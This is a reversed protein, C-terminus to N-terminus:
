HQAVWFRSAASATRQGDRHGHLPSNSLLLADLSFLVGTQLLGKALSWRESPEAGSARGEAAAAAAAAGTPRQAKSLPPQQGAARRSKPQSSPLPLM